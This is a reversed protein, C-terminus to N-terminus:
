IYYAPKEQPLKFKVQTRSQSYRTVTCEVHTYGLSGTEMFVSVWM